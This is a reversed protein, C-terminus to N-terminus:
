RFLKKYYYLEHNPILEPHLISIMDALIIDPKLVGGEHFDNGGTSNTRRTNNYVNGDKFAKFLSYRSDERLGDSLSNWASSNLWFDAKGSKAFISEINMPIGDSRDSSDLNYTGGADRIFHVFLSQAGPVHWAGGWSANLIVEPRNEVNETLMRLEEYKQVTSSVYENAREEAHEGFLPAFFNLWEVRGLPHNELYEGALVVKIGLSELRKALDLESPLSAYLFAVDPSLALIKEINVNYGPGIDEAMLKEPEFVYSKAGQGILGEKVGLVEWYPLLTTSASVFSRVPVKLARQNAETNPVEDGSYLVYEIPEGGPYPRLVRLAKENISFGNAYKTSVGPSNSSVLGYEFTHEKTKTLQNSIFIISVSIIVILVIYKRQM